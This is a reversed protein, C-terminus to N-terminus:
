LWHYRFRLLLLTLLGLCLLLLVRTWFSVRGLWWRLTTISATRAHARIVLTKTRRHHARPWGVERLETEVLTDVQWTEFALPDLHHNIYDQIQRQAGDSCSDPSLTFDTYAHIRDVAQDEIHVRGGTAASLVGKVVDELVDLDDEKQNTESRAAVVSDALPAVFTDARRRLVRTMAARLLARGRDPVFRSSVSGM